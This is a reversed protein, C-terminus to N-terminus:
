TINLYIQKKQLNLVVLIFFVNKYYQKKKKVM